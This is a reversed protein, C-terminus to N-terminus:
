TRTWYGLKKTFLALPRNDDLSDLFIMSAACVFKLFITKKRAVASNNVAGKWAEAWVNVTLLVDMTMPLADHSSVWTMVTVLGVVTV